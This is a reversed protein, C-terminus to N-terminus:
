ERLNEKMFALTQEIIERSEETDNWIDFGHEGEEYIVMEVAAGSEEVKTALNDLGQNVSSRDLGAQAIFIPIDPPLEKSIPFTLGYYVVFCSIADKYGAAENENILAGVATPTNGSSSWLCIHETDARLYDSNEQIFTIVDHIDANPDKVEYNVGLMDSTAVLQGWSVYWGTDKLDKFDSPRFGNVFLVIPLKEDFNFDPPYYFDATLDDKYPINAITVNEMGPLVLMAWEQIQSAKRKEVATLSHDPTPWPTPPVATATPGPLSGQSCASMLFFLFTYVFLYYTKMTSERM